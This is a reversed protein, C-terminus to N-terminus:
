GGSVDSDTPYIVKNIDGGRVSLFAVAAWGALFAVFVLLCLVDTCSRQLLFLITIM